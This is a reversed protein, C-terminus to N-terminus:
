EALLKAKLYQGTYSKKVSVIHEPTGEAVIEGGKEGGEPGVDLVWDACKIVDLNHEIVLVSNGKDVLRDILRILKAIDHFHLGTTPEDMIYFINATTKRVLEACLKIRQAEGGSLTTSPQGLLIYGLGVEKLLEMYPAIYRHNEFFPCAEEVTMDLVDAITKGKFKVQLTEPNYRSGRCTDCQMHVDPLFHMEVTKFGQGQCEECRGGKVNFSFRGATYGRSKAEPLKAFIERIFDFSGTYTAPNSRSTRGIPSQDIYVLREIKQFGTLSDFKGPTAISSGLEKKLGMGLCDHILTSKGAGSVGTVCTFVGLPVSLDVKKLNNEVCGKLKLMAKKDIPRRKKPVPISLKGSLYQGTLSRKEQKIAELNGCAVLEGGFKGAGPGIDILFDASHIVDEDHEVVIVTNGLDKLKKLTNLLRDNDKQHLGITPEDLVYTVGSLKAGIQSALKIRQAEGGSLSRTARNLTMYDLGVDSLFHLRELIAAQIPEAIKNREKQFNLNQFFLLAEKVSMAAIQSINKEQIRVALVEPKLRAGHCSQCPLSAMFEHIREKMVESETEQFRKKLNPIVGEYVSSGHLINKRITESLDKWPTNVSIKHLKALHEVSNRYFSRLGSGCRKWVELAGEALSFNPNLVMTQSDFELMNGLGSCEPCAGFPSNFSFIRPEIEDLVTGHETCAFHESYLTEVEKGKEEILAMCLGKGAKLAIEVSDFIRSRNEEKILLRDVVVDISHQFKKDLAPIEEMLMIKKDVRVRTFGAKEMQEFIERHEGKRMRVVPALIQVKTGETKSLLEQTIAQVTQVSIVKDCIPCHAVGARAYFVRLYDYIETTTAVTSRPTAQGTRQEIAITPTLGEISEVNPKEMQGLFQRAYSSLSEIYRRQGEAYLTDFALSSKGSGSLGTIVVLCDRPIDVSVGKLNHEFANKVRIVKASL